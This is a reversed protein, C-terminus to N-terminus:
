QFNPPITAIPICKTVTADNWSCKYCYVMTNDWGLGRFNLTQTDFCMTYM